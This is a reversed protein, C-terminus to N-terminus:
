GMYVSRIGLDDGVFRLVGLTTETLDIQRGPHVSRSGEDTARLDSESTMEVFDIVSTMILSVPDESGMQRRSYLSGESDSVTM